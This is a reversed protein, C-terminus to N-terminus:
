QWKPSIFSALFPRNSQRPFMKLAERLSPFTSIARLCTITFDRKHFFLNFGDYSVTSQRIKTKTFTHIHTAAMVSTFPILYNMPGIWKPFSYLSIYWLDSLTLELCPIEILHLKFAQLSQNIPIHMAWDRRIQKLKRLENWFNIHTSWNCMFDIKPEVINQINRIHFFNYIYIWTSKSKPEHTVKIVYLDLHCRQDSSCM